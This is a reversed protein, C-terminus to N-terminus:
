FAACAAIACRRRRTSAKSRLRQVRAVTRHRRVANGAPARRHRVDCHRQSELARRSAATSKGILQWEGRPKLPVDKPPSLRAADRALAVYSASRSSQAHRVYAAALSANRPPCEGVSRPRKCCCRRSSHRRGQAPARVHRSDFRQRGDPVDGVHWLARPDIPAFDVRVQSWDLELEEALIQALGSQAGQGMETANMLLCLHGDPDIRIWGAIMEAVAGDAARLPMRVDVLLIGGALGASQLFSRRSLKMPMSRSSRDGSLAASPAPPERRRTRRVARRLTTLQRAGARDAASRRHRRTGLLGTTGVATWAPYPPKLYNGAVEEFLAFHEAKTGEFDPGQWVHFSNIM